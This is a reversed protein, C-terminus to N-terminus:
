SSSAGFNNRWVAYDSADVKGDGNGDGSCNDANTSGFNDRWVTYDALNVTGDCNYDGALPQPALAEMANGVNIAGETVTLGAFEDFPKANNLILDKLESASLSSDVSALLAASGAAFSSAVGSGGWQRRYTGDVWTSLIDEGPGAIHVKVDGYNSYNLYQVFSSFATFTGYYGGVTLINPLDYTAPPLNLNNINGIQDGAATVFLIDLENMEQILQYMTNSTNNILWSSQVAVINHGARKKKIIYGMSRLFADLSTQFSNGSVHNVVEVAMLSVDWNIGNIGVGNNGQAGIIGAEYTGVGHTDQPAANSFANFGHASEGAAFSTTNDTWLNDVLDQHNLDIGSSMIAVVIDESGTSTKWAKYADIGVIPGNGWNDIPDNSCNNFESCDPQGMKTSPSQLANNDLNITIVRNPEISSVKLPDVDALILESNRKNKVLFTLPLPLDDSILRFGAKAITRKLTREAIREGMKKDKVRRYWKRPKEIGRKSAIKRIINKRTRKLKNNFFGEDIQM